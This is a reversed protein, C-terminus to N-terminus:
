GKAAKKIGDLIIDPHLIPIMHGVNPILTLMSNELSNHLRRAQDLTGFPDKEGVIIVTPAKVESYKQSLKKSASPFALVDKRNARFQGPRFGLAFTEEAYDAPAKEPAFTSAVMTKAMAEGLPTKLLTNLVISGAVPATIIKSLIDGNEAPYGEKYMAAGLLVLGATDKPFQLAYSLAMTGSWSHAVLIVPKNVGLKKMAQHLLTAQSMPTVHKDKPRGSYGYGPRDFSFAEYGEKAALEMVDSFDKGSLIAGHLFVVPQGKGARHYHLKIGDVTVFSGEPPFEAEGKKVEARNHFYLILLIVLVACLILWKM